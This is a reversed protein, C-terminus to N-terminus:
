RSHIRTFDRLRVLGVTGEISQMPQEAWVLSKVKPPRKQVQEWLEKAGIYRVECAAKPLHKSLRAKVRNGSDLTYSNPAVDDGTIYLYEVSVDPFGSSLKLYKEKWTRMIRVVKDNYRKGFSTASKSLDFFDDTLELWKEIETPKFGGSTKSQFILLKVKSVGKADLATDEAVLQRQNVLFYIADAGGDNGGDTIGAMIEEDDLSYSKVFQEIGYYLWAEVSAPVERSQKWVEFNSKLVIADNASM